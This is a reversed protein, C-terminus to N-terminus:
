KIEMVFLVTIAVIGGANKIDNVVLGEQGM